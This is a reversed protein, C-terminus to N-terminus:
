RKAQRVTEYIEFLKMKEDLNYFKCFHLVIPVALCLFAQCATLLFMNGSPLATSLVYMLVCTATVVTLRYWEFPIDYVKRFLAKASMAYIFYTIVTAVAAGMYGFQPIFLINMAINLVAAIGNVLAFLWTKNSLTAGVSMFSTMGYPILGLCVLPIVKHAELYEPAALLSVIQKSFMSVLFMLLVLASMLYTTLRAFLEKANPKKQIEFIIASSWILGISVMLVSNAAFAIKYGLSYIGVEELGKFYRIQYQDANHMIAAMITAPVLPLGFTLMNKFKAFDFKMSTLSIVHATLIICLLLNTSAQGYIMGMAGLKLKVIFYLNLSIGLCLQLLGYSVYKSSQKAAAFYSMSVSILSESVLIVAAVYMMRYFSGNGFIIAAIPQSYWSMALGGLVSSGFALWLGTGIVLKKDQEAEYFHYFRTVAAACGLFFIVKLYNISQDILSLTGYDTKSLYRTYVPLLLIGALSSMVYNISYIFSHKGVQKLINSIM